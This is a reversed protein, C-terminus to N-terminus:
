PCSSSPRTRFPGSRGGLLRGCAGASARGSTRRSPRGRRRTRRWRGCSRASSRAPPPDRRFTPPVEDGRRSGGFGTPPVEDGRRSGRLIESWRRRPVAAGRTLLSAGQPRESAEKHPAPPPANQAPRPVTVAPGSRAPGEGPSGVARRRHDARRPRSPHHRRPARRRPDPGSSIRLLGGSLAIQQAHGAVAQVSSAVPRLPARRLGRLVM